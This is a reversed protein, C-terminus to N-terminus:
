QSHQWQYARKTVFERIDQESGNNHLPLEPKDLVKLLEAKRRKLRGLVQNLTEFSTTTTFIQDFRQKLTAKQQQQEQATLKKYAKLDQYM